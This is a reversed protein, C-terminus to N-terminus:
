GFLDYTEKEMQELFSIQEWGNGLGESIIYRFWQEIYTSYRLAGYFHRFNPGFPYTTITVM